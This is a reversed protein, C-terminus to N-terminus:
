LKRERKTEQLKIWQCCDKSEEDTYFQTIEATNDAKIYVFQYEFIPESPKIRYSSDNLYEIASPLLSYSPELYVEEEAEIEAGEIWEHLVDAYPHRNEGKPICLNSAFFGEALSRARYTNKSALYIFEDVFKAQEQTM